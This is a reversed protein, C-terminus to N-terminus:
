SRLLADIDDRIFSALIIAAVCGGILGVSAIVGFFPYFIFAEIATKEIQSVIIGFVPMALIVILSLVCGFAQYVIRLKLFTKIKMNRIEKEFFIQFSRGTFGIRESWVEWFPKNLFV